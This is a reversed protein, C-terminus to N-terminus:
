MFYSTLIDESSTGENFFINETSMERWVDESWVWSIYFSSLSILYFNALYFPFSRTLFHILSEFIQSPRVGRFLYSQSSFIPLASGFFYSTSVRFPFTQFVLVSENLLTFYQGTFILDSGFFWFSQNSFIPLVSGFLHSHKVRFILLVLWFLPFSQNSVHSPSVKFM